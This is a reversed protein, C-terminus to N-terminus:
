SPDMLDWKQNLDGLRSNKGIWRNTTEFEQIKQRKGIGGWTAASKIM